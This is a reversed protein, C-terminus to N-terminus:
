NDTIIVRRHQKQLLNDVNFKLTNFTRQNTLQSRTFPLYQVGVAFTEPLKQELLNQQLHVAVWKSYLYLLRLQVDVAFNAPLKQEM